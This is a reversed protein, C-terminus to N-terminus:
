IGSVRSYTYSQYHVLSDKDYHNNSILTKLIPAKGILATAQDKNETYLSVDAQPYTYRVEKKIHTM